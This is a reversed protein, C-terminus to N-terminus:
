ASRKFRSLTGALDALDVPKRLYGDCGAKLAMDKSLAEPYATVAIVPLHNLHSFPAIARPVGTAVPGNVEPMGLDMLVLDPNHELAAQVAERGNEALKISRYPFTFHSIRSSCFVTLM